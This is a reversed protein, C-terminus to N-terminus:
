ALVLPPGRYAHTPLLLRVRSVRPVATVAPISAAAPKEPAPVLVLLATRLGLMRRGLRLLARLALEGRYLAAITVVAAAAHAFLMAPSAEFLLHAHASGQGSQLLAPQGHVAHAHTGHLTFGVTGFIFLAHFFLQSIAVSASLAPLSLRRGSIAVCVPLALALPVIIGLPGPVEAGAAVHSMLAVFMAISATTAGRLAKMHRSELMAEM